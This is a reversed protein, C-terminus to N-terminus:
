VCVESCLWGAAGLVRGLVGRIPEEGVVAALILTIYYEHRQRFQRNPDASFHDCDMIEDSNQVLDAILELFELRIIVDIYGDVYTELFWVHRLLM